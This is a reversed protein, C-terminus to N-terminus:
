VQSAIKSLLVGTLESSSSYIYSQEMVGRNMQKRYSESEALERKSPPRVISFASGDRRVFGLEEFVQLIFRVTQRSLGLRKSLGAWVREDGAPIRDERNLFAYLSKFAERDPLAGPEGEPTEAFVAYIREPQRLRVLGGQLCEEYPPLTYLILDKLEAYSRNSAAENLPAPEMGDGALLWAPADSWEAPIRQYEGASFVAIGCGEPLVPLRGNGAKMGRWDFVQTKLIRLDHIMIQPRKTGNWENVTLEGLVDVCSTPAIRAAAAGYGFGVAEVSAATEAEAAALVLKLHQQEKGMTRKEAIRLGEFVFRPAPNGNGFPALRSLQEILPLSADALSCPADAAMVPVLEEETLWESALGELREELEALKDRLLTLGAAAQHGGYHDMLDSCATLAQYIDFGEISRASGKALGTEKDISLVISPRYYKDLLRSAVIGVVGVNWGEAAVLLVRKSGISRDSAELQEHAERIIDEVIKQRDKNLSDLDFALLEAEQENDTTLLKVAMDAHQLRGSANIRPALSFGINTENVLSREIGAVGLLAKLGLNSTNRMQALGLKVILRNEDMLEMLDAVTGIAAIELWELPPEGLLAHALKFAVGVGALHKFPYSCGPQKPNVIAAAEPLLEPPEHHDTVVVDLGLRGAYAIEERASIGTDVTVILSVGQEKALDLASCNLGYGEHVRHPIYTDFDAGLRTMLRIMLTTSSIGDADYDGYVRIKEKREMALRIRAVAEKMGLLLYPDHFRDAGGSLFREAEEPGTIGRVTLLRAVLPHLKLAEALQEAADEQVRTLKWRAKAELM